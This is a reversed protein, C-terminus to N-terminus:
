NNLVEIVNESTDLIEPHEALYSETYVDKFLGKLGVPNVSIIETEPYYCEVFQKLTKWYTISNRDISAINENRKKNDFTAGVFHGASGINCDIGVIYVKKPNTYLIFQMAQLSVTCFNALPESELNLAIKNGMFGATTMYRKVNELKNIYSEPIQFDKGLNQDGIFKVCNNGKYMALEEYYDEIGAKDIAFLYDFKVKDFLFTRNLGVYIANNISNFYNVSPGAGMLVITKDQYKNKYESFTKQHLQSIINLRIIKKLLDESSDQIKVKVKLGLISIIKRNGFRKISFFNSLKM